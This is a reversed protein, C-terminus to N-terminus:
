FEVYKSHFTLINGFKKKQLIEFKRVKKINKLTLSKPLEMLYRSCFTASRIGVLVFVDPIFFVTTYSTSSFADLLDRFIRSGDFTLNRLFVIKKHFDKNKHSLPLKKVSQM